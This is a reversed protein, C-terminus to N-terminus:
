RQSSILTALSKRERSRKQWDMKTMKKSVRTIVIGVEKFHSITKENVKM